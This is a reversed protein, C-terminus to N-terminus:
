WQCGFGVGMKFGDQIGYGVTYEGDIEFEVDGVKVLSRFGYCADGLVLGQTLFAKVDEPGVNALCGTGQSFGHL